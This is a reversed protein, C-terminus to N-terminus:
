EQPERMNVSARAPADATVLVRVTRTGLEPHRFVVDHDGLPAPVNALPTTGLVQGNLVVEAWPTANLHLVGKPLVPSLTTVRGRVIRVPEILRVGLRDNVLELQHEGAALEFRGEGAAGLRRSGVWVDIDVGAPLAVWGVAPVVASAAGPPSVLASPPPSLPPSLATAVAPPGAAVVDPPAVTVALRATQQQLGIIVGEAAAVLALAAIAYARWGGPLVRRSVPAAGGSARHDVPPREAGPPTSERVTVVGSDLESLELVPPWEM